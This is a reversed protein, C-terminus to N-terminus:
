NGSFMKELLFSNDKGTSGLDLLLSDQTGPKEQEELGLAKKVSADVVAPINDLVKAVIKEAFAAEDFAADKTEKSEKEKKKKAEEDEDDKEPKEDKVPAATAGEAKISDFTSQLLAVDEGMCKKFLSTLGKTVEAKKELVEAPYLFCDQVTGQLLKKEQSDTLPSIFSNVKEKRTTKEADSLTDYGVLSDMVLGAFRDQLSKGIGFFSLLGNTFTDMTEDGQINEQPESEKDRGAVSILSDLVAVSSGGRGRRTIALRKVSTIDTLMFDCDPSDQVPVVESIYDASTEKAGATYYDVAEKTYFAIEGKLAIEGNDLTVVDIVSGVVGQIVEKTDPSLPHEKTLVAYRFKDKSAVLVSAPRYEKYFPKKESPNHGRRLMEDYSYIYTGSRALIADKVIIASASAEDATAASDLTKMKVTM